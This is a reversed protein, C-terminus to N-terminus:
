CANGAMKAQFKNILMEMGLINIVRKLNYALVGLAMEGKVKPLTRLLFGGALISKLNGFVHEVTASRTRMLRPTQKARAAAREAAPAFWSRALNRMPADTCKAKHACGACAKTRYYDIQKTQDRKFRTLVQGAPCTFADSQADYTFLSKAYHGANKTNSAEAMPVVPTIGRDECGQSQAGNMYGTDAVVTLTKAQLTEQAQTAMPQLCAHDNRQTTVEHTVILKHEAHVVQQVNYGAVATGNKTLMVCDPDTLGVRPQSEKDANAAKAALELQAKQLNQDREHLRKLAQQIQGADMEIEATEERDAKDLQALYEDVRRDIRAREKALQEASMLSSKAANAKFRSGDVAVIPAENALLGVERMFGTFEGCANQVAKLNIRRFEAISKHDPTLQGVLWMVEVNRKCETELLRSSRIRNIYGYLYLKFLDDPAYGPRGTNAPVCGTFGLAQLNQGNVYADIVRPLTDAGVFDEVSLPLLATQTRALGRKHKGM